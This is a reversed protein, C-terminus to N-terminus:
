PSVSRWEGSLVPGTVNINCIRLAPGTAIWVPKGAQSPLALRLPRIGTDSRYRRCRLLSSASSSSSYYRTNADDDDGYEQGTNVVTSNAEGFVLQTDHNSIVSSNAVEGAAVTIINGPADDALVAPSAVLGAAALALVSGTRKGKAKALESVVIFAGLVENWVLRYSTNMNRKM